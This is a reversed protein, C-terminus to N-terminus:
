GSPRNSRTTAVCRAVTQAIWLWALMTAANTYAQGPTAAAEGMLEAISADAGSANKPWPLAHAWRTAQWPLADPAAPRDLTASGHDFSDIDSSLM